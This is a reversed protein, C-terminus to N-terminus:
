AVRFAALKRHLDHMLKQATQADQCGSNAHQSLQQSSQRIGTSDQSAARSVSSQEEVATAIQQIMASVQDLENSIESLRTVVDNTHQETEKVQTQCDQMAGVAEKSGNQLNAILRNIEKTSEYTRSALARVEDAVVAFGRGQEGARAAEIAANLALLNTQEAIGQIVDVVATIAQCDSALDAVKHGTDHLATALGSVSRKTEDVQRLCTKNDDVARDTSTSTHQANEAIVHVSASLEEM